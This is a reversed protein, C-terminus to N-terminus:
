KDKNAANSAKRKNSERAARARSQAMESSLDASARQFADDMGAYDAVFDKQLEDGTKQGGTLPVSNEALHQQTTEIATAIDVHAKRYKKKTRPDIDTERNIGKAKYGADGYNLDDILNGSTDTVTGEISQAFIEKQANQEVVQVRSSITTIGATNAAQIISQLDHYNIDRNVKSLGTVNGAADRSFTFNKCMQMLTEAGAVGRRSAEEIASYNAALVQGLQSASATDHKMAVDLTKPLRGLVAKKFNGVDSHITSYAKQKAEALSEKTDLGMFDERRARMRERFGEFGELGNLRDLERNQRATVAGRHGTNFSEKLSKGSLAARNGRYLGSTVGAGASAAAKLAERMKERGTLNGWKGSLNRKANVLNSAGATLGSGTAGLLGGARKFMPGIKDTGKIGLADCLYKPATKAFLLLGIIIFILVLGKVLASEGDMHKFMTGASFGNVVVNIIYIIFYIVAIRIFLDIYVDKVEKVWTEFAGKGAKDIYSVIPIPAMIELLAFKIARIAIDIGMSILVFIMLTAVVVPLIITYNWDCYSTDFYEGLKWIDFEHCGDKVQENYFTAIGDSSGSSTGRIESGHKPSRGSKVSYFVKMVTTTMNTAQDSVRGVNTTATSEQYSDGMIIAPIYSAVDSQAERAFRFVEPVVVLLIIAIAANKIISAAGANADDLKEPDVLYQITSVAIKFFMIVALLMYVRNSFDKIVSEEFIQVDALYLVIKFCDRVLTFFVKDIAALIGYWFM